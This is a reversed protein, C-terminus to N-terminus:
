FPSYVIFLAFRLATMAPLQFIFLVAVSAADRMSASTGATCPAPQSTTMQVGNVLRQVATSFHAPVLM